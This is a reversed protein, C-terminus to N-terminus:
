NWEAEVMIQTMCACLQIQPDPVMASAEQRDALILIISPVCNPKLLTSLNEYLLNFILQADLDSNIGIWKRMATFNKDKLYGVLENFTTETQNLLIGADISGSSSYRQLENMTRRFDPYYKKVLEAVVANDATVNELKLIDLVRRFFKTQLKPAEEKSSKFDVVVCRSHIADIIKNKFNCTFLFRTNPFEEIIGRLSQQGQASMGDFEDFLVFKMGGNFSVTSAYQIVKVRISDIGELSANIFLLDSDLTSVIIRALTTKGTGAGGCFLFHPVNGNELADSVMKKTAEPLIADKLTRPRYKEAWVMNNLKENETM